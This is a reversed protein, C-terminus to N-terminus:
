DDHRGDRGHRHDSLAVRTAASITRASRARRDHERWDHARWNHEHQAQTGAIIANSIVACDRGYNHRDEARWFYGPPASTHEHVAPSPTASLPL